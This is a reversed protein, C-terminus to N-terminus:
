KFFVKLLSLLNIELKLLLGEHWMRGSAKSIDLIIGTVELTQHHYFNVFITIFSQYYRTKMYTLHLCDLNSRCIKLLRISM